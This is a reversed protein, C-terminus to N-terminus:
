TRGLRERRAARDAMALRSQTNMHVREPEQLVRFLTWDEDRENACLRHFLDHTHRAAHQRAAIAPMRQNTCRGYVNPGCCCVDVPALAPRRSIPPEDEEPGPDPPEFPEPQEAPRPMSSIPVDSLPYMLRATCWSISLLALLLLLGLGLERKM